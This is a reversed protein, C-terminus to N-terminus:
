GLRWFLEKLLDDTTARARSTHRLHGINDLMDLGEAPFMYGTFCINEQELKICAAYTVYM